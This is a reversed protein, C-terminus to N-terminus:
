VGPLQRHGAGPWECDVGRLLGVDEDACKRSPVSESVVQLVGKLCPRVGKIPEGPGKGISITGLKAVAPYVIHPKESKWFIM